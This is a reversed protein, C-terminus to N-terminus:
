KKTDYGNKKLYELMFKDHLEISNEIEYKQRPLKYKEPDCEPPNQKCFESLANQYLYIGKALSGFFNSASLEKAEKEKQQKVWNAALADSASKKEQAQTRELKERLPAWNYGGASPNEKVDTLANLLSQSDATPSEILWDYWITGGLDQACRDGRKWDANKRAEALCTRKVQRLKEMENLFNLEGSKLSNQVAIKISENFAAQNKSPKAKPCNFSGGTTPRIQHCNWFDSEDKYILWSFSGSFEKLEISDVSIEKWNSNASGINQLSHCDSFRPGKPTKWLTYVYGMGCDRFGIVDKPLEVLEYTDPDIFQGVNYKKESVPTAMKGAIYTIHAPSLKSGSNLNYALEQRKGDAYSVKIRGNPDSSVFEVVQINKIKTVENLSSDLFSFDFYEWANTKPRPTYAYLNVLRAATKGNSDIPIFKSRVDFKTYPLDRTKTKTVLNWESCNVIKCITGIPANPCNKSSCVIATEKTVPFIQSQEAPILLEGNASYLGFLSVKEKKVMYFSTGDKAQEEYIIPNLLTGSNQYLEYRNNNYADNKWNTNAHIFQFIFISLFILVPKM